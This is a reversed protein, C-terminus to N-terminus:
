AKFSPRLTRSSCLSQFALVTRESRAVRRSTLQDAEIEGIEEVELTLVTAGVLM